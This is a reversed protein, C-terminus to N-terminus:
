KYKCIFYTIRMIETDNDIDSDKFNILNKKLILIGCKKKM